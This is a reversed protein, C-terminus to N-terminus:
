LPVRMAPPLRPTLGREMTSTRQPLLRLFCGRPFCGRAVGPAPTTFGMGNDRRASGGRALARRAPRGRQIMFRYFTRHQRTRFGRTRCRPACDLRPSAARPPRRAGRRARAEVCAVPDESSPRRPRAPPATTVGNPRVNVISKLVHTDSLQLCVAPFTRRLDAYGGASPAQSGNPTERQTALPRKQAEEARTAHPQSRAAAVRQM